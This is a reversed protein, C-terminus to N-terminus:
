YPLRQVRAHRGISRAVLICLLGHHGFGGELQIDGDDPMEAGLSIVFPTLVIGRERQTGTGLEM